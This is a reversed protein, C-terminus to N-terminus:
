AAVPGAARKLVDAAVKLGEIRGLSTDEHEINVAMEADVARLADVFRTWFEVDHGRGLAVFDWSSDKPWEAVYEHGGLNLPNEEPSLRRFREDLVGYVTCNEANIRVDKAAAHVVLDGLYEVAAVPDM